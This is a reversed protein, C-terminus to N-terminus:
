KTQQTIFDLGDYMPIFVGEHNNDSVYSILFNILSLMDYFQPQHLFITSFLNKM